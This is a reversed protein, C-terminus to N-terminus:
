WPLEKGDFRFFKGTQEETVEDLFKLLYAVSIDPELDANFGGMDIMPIHQSIALGQHRYHYPFISVYRNQGLRPRYLLM